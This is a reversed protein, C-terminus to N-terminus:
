THAYEHSEVAVYRRKQRLRRAKNRYFGTSRIDQELQALEANAYDEATKYKNFLQKTVINVREDTCQASLITAVLLELPNRYDLAIEAGSYEKELLEIIRLARTKPNLYVEPKKLQLGL